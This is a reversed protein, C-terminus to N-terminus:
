YKQLKKVSHYEQGSIEPHEALYHNLHYATEENKSVTELYIDRLQNM